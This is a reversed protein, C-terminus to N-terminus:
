GREQVAIRCLRILNLLKQAAKRKVWGIFVVEKEEEEEEEKKEQKEREERRRM